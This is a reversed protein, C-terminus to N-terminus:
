QQMRVRIRDELNKNASTIVRDGYEFEAEVAAFYDGEELITVQMKKVYFDGETDERLVYVIKVGDRETIASIPVINEYSAGDYSLTVRVKEGYELEPIEEAIKGAALFRGTEADKNISELIGQVSKETIRGDEEQRSYVIEFEKGESYYNKEAEDLEFQVMRDTNEELLEILAEGRLVSQGNTVNIESVIGSYSALVEGNENIGKFINDYETELINKELKKQEISDILTEKEMDSGTFANWERYLQELENQVKVQELIKQQRKIELDDPNLSLIPTGAEIHSGKEVLIDSIMFDGTSYICVRDKYIIEAEKSLNSRLKGGTPESATVVPLLLYEITGSFYTLIGIIIFFIVTSKGIFRKWSGSKM